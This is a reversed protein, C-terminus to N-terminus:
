LESKEVKLVFDNSILMEAQWFGASWGWDLSRTKKKKEMTSM